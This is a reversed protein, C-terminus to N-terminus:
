DEFAQYAATWFDRIWPAVDIVDPSCQTMLVGVTEERPDVHWSTGFVGDWGFTGVSRGVELRRTVVGLGLGWGYGDWFNPFFPSIAKQEPTLQDTTMLEVSARSLVRERGYAGRALMMKGLALMDDVTSVLGGAGGEFAPPRAYNGTRPDDSVITGQPSPVYCPPLRDIKSAPVSFDTDNMGLPDFIRERMFAGLSKGSVRAVLVGLIEAPMHYLWREGPQSILPLAGLRKMLEDNGEAFPWSALPLKAEVQARHIPSGPALFVLEGHGSRFTLLDRLTISRRASVVDDLESEPTRLVRRNRLEPLWEDVPDDLRLRCEEVLIMAAIATVPKTMSAMRFIADRRIPARGGFAVSGIEDVHDEGRRSVLAVLGPLKGSDVYRQMIAHMRELRAPSFARPTRSQTAM